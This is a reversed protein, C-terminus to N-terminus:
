RQRRRLDRGRLEARGAAGPHSRSRRRLGVLVAFFCSSAIGALMRASGSASVAFGVTSLLCVLLLAPQLRDMRRLTHAFEVRFTGDDAARWAPAREWAIPVVGATFLAAGIM